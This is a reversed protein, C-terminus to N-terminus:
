IISASASNRVVYRAFEAITAAMCIGGVSAIIHGWFIVTPGGGVLSQYLSSIAGEWQIDFTLGAVFFLMPKGVGSNSTVGICFLTLLNYRTQLQGHGAPQDLANADTGDDSSVARADHELMAPKTTTATTTEPM